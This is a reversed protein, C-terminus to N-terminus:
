FINRTGRRKGLLLSKEGLAIGSQHLPQTYCLVGPVPATAEHTQAWAVRATHLHGVCDAPHNLSSNRNLLITSHFARPVAPQGGFGWPLQCWPALYACSCNAAPTSALHCVQLGFFIYWCHYIETAQCAKRAAPSPAPGGTHRVGRQWAQRKQGRNSYNGKSLHTQDQAKLSHRSNDM